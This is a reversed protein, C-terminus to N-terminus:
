LQEGMLYQSFVDYVEKRRKRSLPLIKGNKLIVEAQEIYRIYALNVIISKYIRVFGHNKLRKEMESITGYFSYSEQLTHAILKRTYIELYLLEDINIRIIRDKTNIVLKQHKGRVEQLASQFGKDFKEQSLPKVLYRFAKVEFAQIVYDMIGTVFIIIVNNNQKRIKDAADIGTMGNMAIDLFVFDYKVSKNCFFDVIEEGSSFEDIEMEPYVQEYQNLYTRLIKRQQMEDDVLAIRVM